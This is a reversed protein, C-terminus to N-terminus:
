ESRAEGASHGVAWADNAADASVGYLYNRDADPSPSTVVSWGSAAGADAAELAARVPVDLVFLYRTALMEAGEPLEEASSYITL